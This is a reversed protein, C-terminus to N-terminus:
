SSLLQRRRNDGRQGFSSTERDIRMMKRARIGARM